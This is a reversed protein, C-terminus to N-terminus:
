HVVPYETAISIAKWLAMYEPGVGPFTGSLDKLLWRGGIKAVQWDGGIVRDLEEALLDWEYPTKPNVNRVDIAEGNTLNLEIM